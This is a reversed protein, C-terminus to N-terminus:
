PTRHGQPRELVHPIPARALWLLAHSASATGSTCWVGTARSVLGARRSTASSLIILFIHEYAPAASAM